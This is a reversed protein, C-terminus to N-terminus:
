GPPFFGLGCKPCVGYKRELVVAQQGHTQLQRKHAGNMQLEEGCEPCVPKEKTEQWDRAESEMATDQLMRARLRALRQDIEKEIAAMSSKPHQVRWAQMGVLVEEGLERWQELKEESM